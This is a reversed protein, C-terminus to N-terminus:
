YVVVVVQEQDAVGTDTEGTEEEDDTEEDTEVTAEDEDEGEMSDDAFAVNRVIQASLLVLLDFGTHSVHKLIIVHFYSSQQLDLYGFTM